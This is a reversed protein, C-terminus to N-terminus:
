KAPEYWDIGTTNRIRNRLTKVSDRRAWPLKLAKVVQRVVGTLASTGVGILEELMALAPIVKNFFGLGAGEEYSDKVFRLVAGTQFVPFEQGREM